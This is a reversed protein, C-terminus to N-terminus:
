PKACDYSAALAAIIEKRSVYFAKDDLVVRLGEFDSLDLTLWERNAISLMGLKSGCPIFVDKNDKIGAWCYPGSNTGEKPTAVVDSAVLSVLMTVLRRRGISM